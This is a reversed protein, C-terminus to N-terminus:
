YLLMALKRRYDHVLESGEPLVRFVDVMVQRAREGVGHRDQEVLSLCIEFAEEYSGSGALAQALQLRLELNGPEAEVAQRLAGLDVNGKDLLQLASKLKEGEPELFGRSELEALIARAEEGRQQTVLLRGLGLLAKADKPQEGLIERYVQEARQPDTAELRQAEVLRSGQLLRDLWTRIQTEPLAGAFFDVVEGAVIGFVAPISQVQFQMAAEQVQDTDAKVLIFRGAYQAALNELIPGLARCPSCWAAWFDVVVPVEFSRELVDREFSEATTNVVWPCSTKAEANM